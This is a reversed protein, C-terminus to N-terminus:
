CKKHTMEYWYIGHSCHNGKVFEYDEVVLNPLIYEPYPIAITLREIEGKKLPELSRKLYNLTNVRKDFWRGKPKRKTQKKGKVCDPCLCQYALNNGNEIKNIAWGTKNALDIADALSEGEPVLIRRPLDIPNEACGQGECEILFAIKVGM